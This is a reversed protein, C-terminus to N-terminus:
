VYSSGKCRLTSFHDCYLRLRINEVRQAWMSFSKILAASFQVLVM